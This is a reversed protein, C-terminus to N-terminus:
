KGLARVIGTNVGHVSDLIIYYSILDLVEHIYYIDTEDTTFLGAM